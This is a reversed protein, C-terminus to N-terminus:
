MVSRPLRAGKLQKAKAPAHLLYYDNLFEFMQLYVISRLHAKVYVMSDKVRTRERRRQAVKGFVDNVFAKVFRLAAANTSFTEFPEFLHEEVQRLEYINPKTM